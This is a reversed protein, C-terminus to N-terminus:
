HTVVQRNLFPYFPSLSFSHSIDSQRKGNLIKGYTGHVEEGNRSVCHRTIHRHNLPFMPRSTKCRTIFIRPLYLKMWRRSCNSIFTAEWEADYAGVISRQTSALSFTAFKCFPFSDDCRRRWLPLQVQHKESFSKWRWDRSSTISRLSNSIVHHDGVVWFKAKIPM